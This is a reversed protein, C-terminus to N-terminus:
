RQEETLNRNSLNKLANKSEEKAQNNRYYEIFDMFDVLRKFTIQSVAHEMKCADQDATKSDIGLINTLFNFIIQHQLNIEQAIGAGEKTLEVYEYKEHIILDRSSLKNLMSTVSPMRVNMERAIDRVRVVKGSKGLTYILELYDEMTATLSAVM